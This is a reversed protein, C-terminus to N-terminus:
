LHEPLMGFANETTRAQSHRYKFIRYEHTFNRGPYFKLLFSQPPFAEDVLVFLCQKDSFPLNDGKPINLANNEM